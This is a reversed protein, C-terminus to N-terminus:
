TDVEISDDGACANLAFNLVLYKRITDVLQKDEVTLSEERVCRCRVGIDEHVEELLLLRLYCEKPSGDYSTVESRANRRRQCTTQGGVACLQLNAVVVILLAALVVVLQEILNTRRKPPLM